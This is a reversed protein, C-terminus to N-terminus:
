QLFIQIAENDTLNLANAIKHMEGVTFDLGESKLKRSLTSPNIGIKLALEEHTMKNEVIKGRLKDMDAKM